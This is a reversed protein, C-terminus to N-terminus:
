FAGMPLSVRGVTYGKGMVPPPPPAPPLQGKRVGMMKAAYLQAVSWAKRPVALRVQRKGIIPKDEWDYGVIRDQWGTLIVWTEGFQQPMACFHIFKTHVEVKGDKRIFLYASPDIAGGPLHYAACDVYGWALYSEKVQVAYTPAQAQPQVQTLSNSSM